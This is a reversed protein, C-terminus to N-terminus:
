CYRYDAVAILDGNSATAIAPIRYPIDTELRTPFVEYEEMTKQAQAFHVSGCLLLAAIMYRSSFRIM